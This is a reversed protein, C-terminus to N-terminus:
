NQKLNAVTKAALERLQPEPDKDVMEQLHIALQPSKFKVVSHLMVKRVGVEPDNKLLNTIREVDRVQLNRIGSAAAVRLVDEPSKAAAEVVAVSEQSPILSALYAAKTALNLDGGKVLEMLFPLADPGLQKAADYDVEDPQLMARVQSMTTPM